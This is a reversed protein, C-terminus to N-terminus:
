YRPLTQKMKQNKTGRGKLSHIGVMMMSLRLGQRREPDTSGASLDKTTAGGREKTNSKEKVGQERQSSTTRKRNKPGETQKLGGFGEMQPKPEYGASSRTENEEQNHGHQDPKDVKQRGQQPDKTSM